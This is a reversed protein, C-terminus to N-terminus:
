QSPLPPEVPHTSIPPPGQPPKRRGALKKVAVIITILLFLGGAGIAIDKVQLGAFIGKRPKVPPAKEKEAEEAAPPPTYETLEIVQPASTAAKTIKPKPAPTTTACVCDTDTQCAPNRCFGQYCFFEPQCNYNSGCTGGCKNPEGVAPPPSEEIGGTGKASYALNSQNLTGCSLINEGNTNLIQSDAGSGSCVFSITGTGTEKKATFKITAVTGSGSKSEYLNPFFAHIEIRGAVDNAYSVSPFFGGGVLSKFGIDGGPYTLVADAGFVSDGEVDIALNIEFESDKAVTTSSPDLYLRPAAAAPSFTASVLLFFVSLFASILLNKINM